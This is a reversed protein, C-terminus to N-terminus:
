FNTGTNVFGLHTRKFPDKDGQGYFQGQKLFVIFTRIRLVECTAKKRKYTYKLVEGLIAYAM